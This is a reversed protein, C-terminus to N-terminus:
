KSLHRLNRIEKLSYTFISPELNLCNATVRTCAWFRRNKLVPRNKWKRHKELQTTGQLNPQRGCAMFCGSSQGSKSKNLIRRSQLWQRSTCCHLTAFGLWMAVLFRGGLQDLKILHQALCTLYCIEQHSSIWIRRAVFSPTNWQKSRQTLECLTDQLAFAHSPLPPPIQHKLSSCSGPLSLPTEECATWAKACATSQTHQSLLWCSHDEQDKWMGWQGCCLDTPYVVTFTYPDMHWVADRVM